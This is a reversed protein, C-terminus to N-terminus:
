GSVLATASSPITWRTFYNLQLALQARCHDLREELKRREADYWKSKLGALVSASRSKQHKPRLKEILAIIQKALDDCEKALRCLAKEEGTLRADDPPQLKSAFHRMEAVIAESSCNEQTLGSPSVYIDIASSVVKASFDVFSLINSALGIATLPDM